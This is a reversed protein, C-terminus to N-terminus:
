LFPGKDFFPIQFACVGCAVCGADFDLTLVSETSTRM